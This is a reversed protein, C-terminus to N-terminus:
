SGTRVTSLYSEITRRCFYRITLTAKNKNTVQNADEMTLTAKNNKNLQDVDSSNSEKPGMMVEPKTLYLFFSLLSRISVFEFTSSGPM